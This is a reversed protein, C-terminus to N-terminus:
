RCPKLPSKLESFSARGYPPSLCGRSWDALLRFYGKAYGTYKRSGDAQEVFEVIGHDTDPFVATDIAKGARRLDALRAMTTQPPAARDSGAVIWLVPVSLASLAPMADYGWEIDLNDYNARGKERLEREGTTILDGTYEGKIETFWPQRGYKERVKALGDYGTEFHSSIVAATADTVERAQSLIDEGYGREKLETQVQEADEEAPSLVLGYNILLFEAGTDKAALPAVWGGQSFGQLGFRSYRGAALRRAEKAAAALDRALRHFNMNFEGESRGTGRKDFIFASVGNAALLYPHPVRGGTWGFNESGHALVVLPPKEATDVAEILEGALEADGSRFRTRTIHLPLKAWRGKGGDAGRVQLAGGDCQVTKDNDDLSGRRGDDFAYRSGGPTHTLVVVAGSGSRYAGAECVLPRDAEASAASQAALAIALVAQALTGAKLFSKM